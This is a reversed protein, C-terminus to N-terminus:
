VLLPVIQGSQEAALLEYTLEHADACDRCAWLHWWVHPYADAAAGSDAARELDIYAALDRECQACTAPQEPISARRLMAHLLLLRGGCQRCAAM